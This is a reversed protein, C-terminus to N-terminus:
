VWNIDLLNNVSETTLSIFVVGRDRNKSMERAKTFMAVLKENEPAKNDITLYAQGYFTDSGYSVHIESWVDLALTSIKPVTVIVHDPYAGHPISEVMDGIITEIIKPRFLSTIDTTPTPITEVFERMLFDLVDDQDPKLLDTPINSRQPHTCAVARFTIMSDGNECKPDGRDSAVITIETVNKCHLIEVDCSRGAQKAVNLTKVTEFLGLDDFYKCDKHSWHMPKIFDLLSKKGM